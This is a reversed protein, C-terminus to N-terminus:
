RLYDFDDEKEQKTVEYHFTRYRWELTARYSECEDQKKFLKVKAGEDFDFEVVGRVLTIDYLTDEISLWHKILLRRLNKFNKFMSKTENSLQGSVLFDHEMSDYLNQEYIKFQQVTQEKLTQQEWIYRM